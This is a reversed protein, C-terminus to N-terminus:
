NDSVHPIGHTSLYSNSYEVKGTIDDGFWDPPIFRLAEDKTPFEVEAIVLGELEDKFIDLEILHNDYPIEYRDKKIIIGDAKKLLHFYAEQPIETELEEHSMGPGGSKLTFFFSGNDNRVRVAPIQCLYGQEISRKRFSSLDHPINDTLFRREIEM